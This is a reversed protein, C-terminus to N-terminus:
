EEPSLTQKWDEVVTQVLDLFAETLNSREAERPLLMGVARSLGGALPVAKVERGPALDMLDLGPLVAVGLGAEVMSVAMRNEQPQFDMRSSRALRQYEEWIVSGEDFSETTPIFPYKGEVEDVAIEQREALDSDRPVLLYYPDEWLVVHDLGAPYQGAFFCGDLRHEKVGQEGDLYYLLHELKM